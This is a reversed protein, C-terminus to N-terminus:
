DLPQARSKQLSSGQISNRGGAEYADNIEDHISELGIEKHNSVKEERRKM